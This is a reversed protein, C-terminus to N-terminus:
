VLGTREGLGLRLSLVPSSKKTRRRDLLQRRADASVGLSNRAARYALQKEFDHPDLILAARRSDYESEAEACKKEAEVKVRTSLLNDSLARPDNM